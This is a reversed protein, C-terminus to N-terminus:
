RSLVAPFRLRRVPCFQDMVVFLVMAFWIVMFTILCLVYRVAYIIGFLSLSTDRLQRNNVMTLIPRIIPAIRVVRAYM